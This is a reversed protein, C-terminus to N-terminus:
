KGTEFSIRVIRRTWEEITEDKEIEAEEGLLSVFYNQVQEVQETLDKRSIEETGELIIENNILDDFNRKKISRWIPLDGVAIERRLQGLFVQEQAEQSIEKNINYKEFIKDLPNEKKERGILTEKRGM